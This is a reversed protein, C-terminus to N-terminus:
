INDASFLKYFDLTFVFENLDYVEIFWLLSSRAVLNEVRMYIKQVAFFFNNIKSNSVFILLFLFFLLLHRDSIWVMSQCSALM